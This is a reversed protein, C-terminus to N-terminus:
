SDTELRYVRISGFQDTARFGLGAAAQEFTTRGLESWQEDDEDIIVVDVDFVPNRTYFVPQSADFERLEVREALGPLAREFAAVSLSPDVSDIAALVDADNTSRAGWTWPENYLSSGAAFLFFAVSAFLVGALLRGNVFVRQVSRRGVTWLAFSAAIPLFALAAVDQQPTGFRGPPIAAVFGFAGFLVLPLQFRLRLVPLFLWPAFLLILRGFNEEAVFDGLVQGPNTLMGWLVSVPGDGYDEFADAYVFEGGALDAQFVLLALVAWLAGGAATLRGARQKGDVALLTGLGIVVLGLDSRTTLAFAVALGFRVWQERQSFLYAWMLAPLALAEPHFEALNLNHLQPQFGYAISITLATEVGLELISRAIRWLPVVGLALAASQLVLLLPGAPVFRAIQAIPWMIISFQGEFVSRQTISVLPEEGETLLWIGQTWAAFEAGLELSRWRALALGAFGVFLVTAIIWPIAGDPGAGELRAQWRLVRHNLSRRVDSEPAFASIISTM